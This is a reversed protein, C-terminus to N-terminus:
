LHESLARSTNELGCRELSALYEERSRPPNRLSQWHEAVSAIVPGLSRDMLLLAFQDPSVAEIGEPALAAEPFDDLNQTVIYSAGCEIAAALVHRDDPDPLELGEIRHEYGVVPVGDVHEDM